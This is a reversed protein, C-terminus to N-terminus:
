DADVYTTAHPAPDVKAYLSASIVLIRITEPMTVAITTAYVPKRSKQRYAGRARIFRRL